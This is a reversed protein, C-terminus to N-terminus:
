VGLGPNCHKRVRWVLYAIGGEASNPIPPLDWAQVDLEAIGDDDVPCQEDIMRHALEPSIGAQRLELEIGMLTAEVVARTLELRQIGPDPQVIEQLVPIETAPVSSCGALMMALMFLQKM